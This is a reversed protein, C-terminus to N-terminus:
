VGLPLATGLRHLCDPVILINTDHYRISRLVSFLFKFNYMVSTSNLLKCISDSQLTFLRNSVFM